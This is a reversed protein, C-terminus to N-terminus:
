VIAVWFLQFQGFDSIVLGVVSDSFDIFSFSPSFLLKKQTAPEFSIAFITTFDFIYIM